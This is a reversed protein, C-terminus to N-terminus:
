TSEALQVRRHEDEVRPTAPPTPGSTGLAVQPALHRYEHGGLHRAHRLLHHVSHGPLQHLLLRSLRPEDEMRVARDVATPAHGLGPSPPVDRSRECPAGMDRAPRARLRRLREPRPRDSQSRERCAGRRGAGVHLLEPPLRPRPSRSGRERLDPPYGRPLRDGRRAQTRGRAHIRAYELLNTSSSISM